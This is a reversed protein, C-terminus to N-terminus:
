FLRTIGWIVTALLGVVALILTILVAATMAVSRIEDQTAEQEEEHPSYQDMYQRSYYLIYGPCFYRNVMCSTHVCNKKVVVDHQLREACHM